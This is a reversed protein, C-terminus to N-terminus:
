FYSHLGPLLFSVGLYTFLTALFGIIAIAASKAGRWNGKLRGHLYAVYIIWVILSWTEKPDWSWFSGWARWAWFSGSLIGATLFVFGFVVSKYGLRDVLGLSPLRFFFPDIRKSKLEHEQWLYMIGFCFAMLFCAYSLFCATVHVGLWPSKLAPALPKIRPDMILSYGAVAAALPLVFTGNAWNKQRLEVIVYVLVIVWSFFVLSEHLNSMPPYGLLFARVALACTHILFGACCLRFAAIGLVARQSLFFLVYGLASCAYLLFVASVMLTYGHTLFPM